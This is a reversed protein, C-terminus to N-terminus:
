RIKAPRLQLERERGLSPNVLCDLRGYRFISQMCTNCAICTRIDDFWGNRAKIPLEPDAMLGRGICVLDAMGKAIIGDATWPDNIRGVAMVPVNISKRIAAASDALCAKRIFMPQCIWEPTSDNGASM